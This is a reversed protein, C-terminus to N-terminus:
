DCVKNEEIYIKFVFCYGSGLDCVKYIKIRFRTKIPNFQIYSLCSRMNMFSEGFSVSQKPQFTKLFKDKLYQTVPM